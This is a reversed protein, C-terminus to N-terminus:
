ETAGPDPFVALPLTFHFTCGEPQDTTVSITGGHREVIKKCVALGIGSGDYTERPHLRSFMQFLGDQKGLPIGIGNDEVSFNWFAGERTAHIRVRPEKAGRFKLANNILNQFLSRIQGEDGVVFPLADVEVKGGSQAISSELNKVVERVVKNCDVVLVRLVQSGTRSVTLLDQILSRMRNAAEVALSLSKAAEENLAARDIKEIFQLHLAITRLPEQLDHSAVFAFKELEANSRKLQELATSLDKEMRKREGIDKVLIGVATIGLDPDRVPFVTLLVPLGRGDKARLERELEVPVGTAIVRCVSDTDWDRSSDFSLDSLNRRGVLDERSYGTFRCLSENVDVLAGDLSAYAMGDKSFAFMDEFRKLAETREREARRENTIDKDTSVFHEIDGKENRLPTITKESYYLEGSKRRNVLVGRYVAGSLITTWLEEYFPQSHVDSRVLSPFKGIAEAKSYGSYHEFAPNVYEIEGRLNTIMVSDDTQEVVSSLKQILARSRVAESIDRAIWSAGNVRGDKGYLPSVTISVDFLSGDKKMRVTEFHSVPEGQKIKKLTAQVQAGYGLPVLQFASKGRIEESTFGFMKRAAANWTLVRGDPDLSLIADASHEVIQAVHFFGDLNKQEETVDVLIGCDARKAGVRARLPHVSALYTAGEVTETKVPHDVATEQSSFWRPFGEAMLERDNKGLVEADTVHFANKFAQNVYLYRGRPSKLYVPAPLADLVDRFSIQREPSTRELRHVSEHVDTFESRFPSFLRAFFRSLRLSHDYMM